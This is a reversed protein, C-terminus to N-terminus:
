GCLVAKLIPHPICVEHNWGCLHPVNEVCRLHTPSGEEVRGTHGREEREEPVFYGATRGRLGGTCLPLAGPFCLM